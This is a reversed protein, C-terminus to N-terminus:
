LSAASSGGSVVIEGGEQSPRTAPAGDDVYGTYRILGRVQADVPWSADLPILKPDGHVLIADYLSRLRTHTEAVRAPKAPAVLIDRVSSVVLPCPRMARARAVLALFEGALARRGFPFLETMVVDPRARELAALMLRRRDALRAPDAPRGSEDLLTAFDAGATQVPPLQVWRVGHTAVLPAPRGGSVLTADHGARAFARAIAAARTLHGAGLLHTVAILVRM